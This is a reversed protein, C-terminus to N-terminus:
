EGQGKELETDDDDDAFGLVKNARDAWEFDDIINLKDKDEDTLELGFMQKYNSLNEKNLKSNILIRMENLDKMILSILHQYHEYEESTLSAEIKERIIKDKNKM